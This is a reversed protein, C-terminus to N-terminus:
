THTQMYHTELYATNGTILVGPAEKIKFSKPSASILRRREFM